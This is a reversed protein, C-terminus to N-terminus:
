TLTMQRLALMELAFPLVPTAPRRRLWECLLFGGVFELVFPSVIYMRWVTLDRYAAPLYRGQALDFGVVVLVVAGWAVLALRLRRSFPDLTFHVLSPM